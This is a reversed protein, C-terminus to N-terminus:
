YVPFTRACCFHCSTPLAPPLKMFVLRTITGRESDSCAVKELHRIVFVANQDREFSREVQLLLRFHCSCSRFIRCYVQCQRLPVHLFIDVFQKFICSDLHPCAHQIHFPCSSGIAAVCDFNTCHCLSVSQSMQLNRKAICAPVTRSHRQGVIIDFKEFYTVSLVTRALLDKQRRLQIKRPQPM